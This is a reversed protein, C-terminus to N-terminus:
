LNYWFTRMCSISRAVYVSYSTKSRCRGSQNRHTNKKESRLFINSFCFNETKRSLICFKMTSKKTTISSPPNKLNTYDSALKTNAPTVFTNNMHVFTVSKKKYASFISILEYCSVNFWTMSAFIHQPVCVCVRVSRDLSVLFSSSNTLVVTVFFWKDTLCISFNRSNDIM